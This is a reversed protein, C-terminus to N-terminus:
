FPFKRRLSQLNGLIKAVLPDSFDKVEVLGSGKPMFTLHSSAVVHDYPDYDRKRIVGVFHSGKKPITTCSSTRGCIWCGLELTPFRSSDFTGSLTAKPRVQLRHTGHFYEESSLKEVDAVEFFIVSRTTWYGSGEGSESINAAVGSAPIGLFILGVVGAVNCRISM